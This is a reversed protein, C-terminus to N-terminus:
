SADLDNSPGGPSLALFRAVESLLTEAQESLQDAAARIERATAAQESATTAALLTDLAPVTRQETFESVLLAAEDLYDSTEQASRPVGNLSALEPIDMEVTM